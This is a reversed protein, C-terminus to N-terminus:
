AANLCLTIVNAQERIRGETDTNPAGKFGIHSDSIQMFSFGSQATEAAQASGVIQGRPVGGAVTWMVAGGAWAMCELLGRRSVGENDNNDADM